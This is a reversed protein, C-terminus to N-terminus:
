RSRMVLTASWINLHASSPDARSWVKLLEGSIIFAIVGLEEREGRECRCTECDGRKWEQGARVVKRGGDVKCVHCADAAVCEGDLLARGSDCYCGQSELQCDTSTSYLDGLISRAFVSLDLDSAEEEEEQALLNECTIPCQDVCEKFAEDTNRLPVISPSAFKCVTYKTSTLLKGIYM